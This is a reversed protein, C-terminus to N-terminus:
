VISGGGARLNSEGLRYSYLAIDKVLSLGYTEEWHLM